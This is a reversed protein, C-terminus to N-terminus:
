ESSAALPNTGVMVSSMTPGIRIEDVAVNAQLYLRMLKEQPVSGKSVAAPKNLVLPGFAPAFFFARDTGFIRLQLRFRSM